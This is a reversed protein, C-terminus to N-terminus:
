AIRGTVRDNEELLFLAYECHDLTPNRKADFQSFQEDKLPPVWVPDDMYLRYPLSIFRKLDSKSVVPRINMHNNQQYRIESRPSIPYFMCLRLISRRQM